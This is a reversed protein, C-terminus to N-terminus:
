VGLIIQYPETWSCAEFCSVPTTVQGSISSYSIGTFNCYRPDSPLNSAATESASESTNPSSSPTSTPTSTPNSTPTSTPNSTPTSTPTSNTTPKACTSPMTASSDKPICIREKATFTDPCSSVCCNDILYGSGCNLTDDQEYAIVHVYGVDWGVYDEATLIIKLNATLKDSSKIVAIVPKYCDHGYYDDHSYFCKRTSNEVINATYVVNDATQLAITGKTPTKLSHLGKGDYSPYDVIIIVKTNSLVTSINCEYTASGQRWEEPNSSWVGLIVQYSEAWSCAASCNSKSTVQGSISSYSIGSLKCYRPLLSLCSSLLWLFFIIWTLCNKM